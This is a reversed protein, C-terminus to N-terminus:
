FHGPWKGGLYNAYSPRPCARVTRLGMIHLTVRADNILTTIAREHNTTRPQTESKSHDEANSGRVSGGRRDEEVKRTNREADRKSKRQSLRMKDSVYVSVLCTISQLRLDRWHSHQIM